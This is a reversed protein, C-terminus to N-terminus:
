HTGTAPEVSGQDPELRAGGTALEARFADVSWDRGLFNRALSNMSESGGPALMTERYRRATATDRLGAQRFRSLLDVALAKSWMYTYYGAAYSALHGFSAQRHSGEPAPVISYRDFSRAFDGTLDRRAMGASYFDLSVASYGLQQTVSFAEAFRRAANMKRVLEAPIPEGEADRAFRRLTDYDWVWEELLQSPAELADNELEVPNQAAWERQGAFLWHLLHGFEHLFTVVDGHEMLGTPFNTVLVAVPVQRGRIGIRLPTMMAHSFKGERPHMDLFFRGIVEGGEVMEYARVEPSWATTTWPRIEVGFLDKTLDLLGDRVEDFGFYRRVVAPDVDYEEKRILRSAYSTSWAGLSEVEPDDKRLRELMRAADKAAVPRAVAAVEDMFRRVDAPERVMRNALDLTAYDAHGALRALERREGLLRALVADNKPHARSSFELLLRKRLAESDAYRFVPLADPYATTIRVLGDV